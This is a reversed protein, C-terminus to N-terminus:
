CQGWMDNRIYRCRKGNLQLAYRLSKKKLFLRRAMKLAEFEMQGGGISGVLTNGDLLLCNTGVDRPASGKRNIIRIWVMSRGQSLFRAIRVYDNSSSM